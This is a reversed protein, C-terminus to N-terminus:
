QCPVAVWERRLISYLKLDDFSGKYFVQERITGEYTMGAKEMVRASGINHPLCRAEIRNLGLEEFGYRISEVVAETTLGQGWWARGIAYGLEGRAHQPTLAMGCTGILQGTSKLELGWPGGFGDDYWSMVRNLYERSDDLTRHAEWTTWSAVEPDSAYAFVEAADDLVLSRLVLRATELRPIEFRFDAPLVM